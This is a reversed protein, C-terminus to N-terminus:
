HTSNHAQEHLLTNFLLFNNHYQRQPTIKYDSSTAFHIGILPSQSTYLISVFQVHRTVKAKDNASVRLFANFYTVRLPVGLTRYLQKLTLKIWRVIFLRNVFYYLMPLFHLINNSKMSILIAGNINHVMRLLTTVIDVHVGQETCAVSAM